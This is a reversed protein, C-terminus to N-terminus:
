KYKYTHAVVYRQRVALIAADAWGMFDDYDCRSMNWAVGFSPLFFSPAPQTTETCLAGGGPAIPRHQPQATALLTKTHTHTRPLAFCLSM